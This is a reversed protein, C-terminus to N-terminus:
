FLILLFLEQQFLKRFFIELRCCLTNLKNGPVVEIYSGNKIYQSKVNLPTHLQNYIEIYSGSLTEIATTGGFSYRINTLINTAINPPITDSDNGRYTTYFTVSKLLHYEHSPMKLQKTLSDLSKSISYQTFQSHRRFVSSFYSIQPNGIYLLDEPGIIKNLNFNLSSM